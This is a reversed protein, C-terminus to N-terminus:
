QISCQVTNYSGLYFVDHKSSFEERGVINSPITGGSVRGVIRVAPNMMNDITSLIKDTRLTGM